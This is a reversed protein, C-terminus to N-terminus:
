EQETRVPILTNWRRSRYVIIREPLKGKAEPFKKLIHERLSANVDRITDKPRGKLPKKRGADLDLRVETSTAGTPRDQFTQLCFRAHGNVKMRLPKETGKWRFRTRSGSLIFATDDPCQWPRKTKRKRCRRRKTKRKRCRRRQKSRLPQGLWAAELESDVGDFVDYIARRALNWERFWEEVDLSYPPPAPFTGLRKSSLLSLLPRALEKLRHHFYSAGDMPTPLHPSDEPSQPGVCVDQRFQELDERGLCGFTGFRMTELKEYARELSQKESIGWEAAYHKAAEYLVACEYMRWGRCALEILADQKEEIEEIEEITM